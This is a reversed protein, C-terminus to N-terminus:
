NAIESTLNPLGTCLDCMDVIFLDAAFFFFFCLGTINLSYKPVHIQIYPSYKWILSANIDILVVFQCEFSRKCIFLKTNNVM